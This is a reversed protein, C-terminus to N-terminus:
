RKSAFKTKDEVFRQICTDRQEYSMSVVNVTNITNNCLMSSEFMKINHTKCFFTVHYTM